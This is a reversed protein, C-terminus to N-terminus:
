RGTDVEDSASQRALTKWGTVDLQYGCYHSLAQRVPKGSISVLIDRHLAIEDILKRAAAGRPVYAHVFKGQGNHLRLAYHTKNARKFRCHYATSLRAGATLTVPEGPALEYPGPKSLKPQKNLLLAWLNAQGHAEIEAGTPHRTPDPKGPTISGPPYNWDLSWKIVKVQDMCLDSLKEPEFQVEVTIPLWPDEKLLNVLGRGMKRPLYGTLTELPGGVLTFAQYKGRADRYGCNFYDVPRAHVRLTFAQGAVLHRDMILRTITPWNRPDRAQGGAEESALAPPVTLVTTALIIAALFKVGASDLPVHPRALEFNKQQPM